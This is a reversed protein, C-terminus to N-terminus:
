TQKTQKSGGKKVKKRKKKGHRWGAEDRGMNHDCMGFAMTFVAWCLKEKLM